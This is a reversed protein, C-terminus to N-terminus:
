FTRLCKVGGEDGISLEKGHRGVEILARLEGDPGDYVTLADYSPEHDLVELLADVQEALMVVKM